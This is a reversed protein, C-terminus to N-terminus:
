KSSSSANSFFGGGELNFVFLYLDDLEDEEESEELEGDLGGIDGPWAEMEDLSSM